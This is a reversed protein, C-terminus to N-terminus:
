LRWLQHARRRWVHRRYQWSVTSTYIQSCIFLEPL